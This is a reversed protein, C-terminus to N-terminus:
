IPAHQWPANALPLNGALRSRDNSRDAPTPYGCLEFLSTGLVMEFDHILRSVTPQTVAFAEAAATMRGTMMVPRFAEVQRSSLHM